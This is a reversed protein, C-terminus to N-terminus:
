NWAAAGTSFAGVSAASLPTVAPAEGAPL